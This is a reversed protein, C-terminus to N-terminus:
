PNIIIRGIGSGDIMRRMAAPVESLPFTRDIVPTLRGSELLAKFTAMAEPKGLIKFNKRKNSDLFARLSFM